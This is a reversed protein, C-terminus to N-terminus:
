NKTKQRNKIVMKEFERFSVLSKKYSDNFYITRAKELKLTDILKQSKGYMTQSLVTKYFNLFFANCNPMDDLFLSKTHNDQYDIVIEIHPGDYFVEQSSPCLISDKTEEIMEKLSDFLTPRLKFEKYITKNNQFSSSCNGRYDIECYLLCKFILSDERSIAGHTSAIRIKSINSEQKTNCGILYILIILLSYKLMKM